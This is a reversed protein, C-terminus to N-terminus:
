QNSCIIIYENTGEKAISKLHRYPVEISSTVPRHRSIQHVLSDLTISPGGYSLVITSIQSAAEFLEDLSPLASSARDDGLMHDLRRYNDDYGSTGAYPPDLYLIDANSDAVTDIANGSVVEGIGGIVSKNVATASRQITTTIPRNLARLYHGLRRPSVRDWDEAVVHHADSASPLSMPFVRLYSNVIALKLLSGTPEAFHESRALLEAFPKELDGKRTDVTDLGYFLKAIDTPLITRSSNGVLARAVIMSREAIDGTIVHFGYWKAALAVSGGGCFPDILKLTPWTTPPLARALLSFILPVLKRKGGLYPPLGAFVKRPIDLPHTIGM